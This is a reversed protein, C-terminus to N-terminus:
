FQCNEETVVAMRVSDEWSFGHLWVALIESTNRPGLDYGQADRLMLNSRVPDPALLVKDSCDHVFWAWGISVPLMSDCKWETFGALRAPIKKARLEQLFEENNESCLHLFSLRSLDSFPLRVYGDLSVVSMPCRTKQM